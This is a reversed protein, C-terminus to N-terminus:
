YKYIDLEIYIYKCLMSLMVRQEALSFNMGICQRAGNGFPVWSMGKGSVQAGDGEAAFRDPDFKLANKWNKESHM